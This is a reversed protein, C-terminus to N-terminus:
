INLHSCPCFGFCSCPLRVKLNLDASAMQYAFMEAYLLPYEDYVRPVLDKWRQSLSLVDKIHIIYPPGVNFHKNVINNTLSSFACNEGGDSLKNISAHIQPARECIRTLNFDRNLMKM